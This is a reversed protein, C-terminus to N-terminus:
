ARRLRRRGHRLVYPTPMHHHGLPDTKIAETASFPATASGYSTGPDAKMANVEIFLDKKNGLGHDGAGMAFLNPLESGNADLLPAPANELADPLGDTDVDAVATSFM